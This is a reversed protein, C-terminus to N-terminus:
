HRFRSHCLTHAFERRCRSTERGAPAHTKPKNLCVICEDGESIPPREVGDGHQQLAQHLNAEAQRRRREAITRWEEAAAREAVEERLAARLTEIRERMEEVNSRVEAAAITEIRIREKERKEEEKRAATAAKAAAKEDARRQKEEEEARRKAELAAQQAAQQRERKQAAVDDERRAREARRAEEEASRYARHVEEAQRAREEAAAARAEAASRTEAEAKAEATARAAVALAEAAAATARAEAHDRAEALQRRLAEAEAELEAVRARPPEVSSTSSGSASDLEDMDDVIPELNEPKIGVTPKGGDPKVHYRGKSEDFGDTTVRAAVGNLEPKTALGSIRVRQGPRYRPEVTAAGRPQQSSSEKGHFTVSEDSDSSGSNDVLAPLSEDGSSDDSSESIRAM